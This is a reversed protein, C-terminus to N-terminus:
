RIVDVCTVPSRWRRVVGNAITTSHLLPLSINDCWTINVHRELLACCDKPFQLASCLLALSQFWTKSNIFHCLLYRSPHSPVPQYKFAMLSVDSPFQVSLNEETVRDDQRTAHLHFPTCYCCRFEILFCLHRLSSLNRGKKEKARGKKDAAHCLHTVVIRREARAPM